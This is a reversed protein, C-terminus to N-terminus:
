LAACGRVISIPRRQWFFNIMKYIPVPRERSMVSSNESDFDSIRFGFHKETLNHCNTIFNYETSRFSNWIKSKFYYAVVSKLIQTPFSWHWTQPLRRHEKCTFIQVEVTTNYRSLRTFAMKTCSTRKNCSTRATVKSTRHQLHARLPRCKMATYYLRTYAMKNCSAWVHSHTKWISNRIGLDSVNKLWGAVSGYVIMIM